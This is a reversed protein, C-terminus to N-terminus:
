NAKHAGPLVLVLLLMLVLLMSARRLATAGRSPTAPALAPPLSSVAVLKSEGLESSRWRGSWAGCPSCCTVHETHLLRAVDM